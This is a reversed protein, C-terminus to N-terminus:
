RLEKFCKTNNEYGFTPYMYYCWGDKNRGYSINDKLNAVDVKDIITGDYTSLILYEDSDGLNFNTHVEDGSKNKDSLYVILYDHARIMVDDFMYKDKNNINDSIYYGSLNIDESSYNYLEVWDSYDGDNDTMFRQNKSMYENIYVPIKKNSLGIPENSTNGSNKIGPSGKEYYVYKRGNYGYSTDNMSGQYNIKSIIAGVDNTLTVVEGSSSLKFNTHCVNDNCRNKGSAFIVLYEKSKIIIKPFKWINTEYENDSLYYGSLDIDYGYGNYLEIYDSYELNDDLYTNTNSAMVENIILKGNNGYMYGTNPLFFYVIGISLLFLILIILFKKIKM